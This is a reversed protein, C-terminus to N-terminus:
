EPTSMLAGNNSLSVMPSGFSPYNMSMSRAGAPSVAKLRGRTQERRSIGFLWRTEMLSFTKFTRVGIPFGQAYDRSQKAYAMTVMVSDARGWGKPMHAVFDASYVRPIASVNGNSWIEHLGEILAKIEHRTMSTQWLTAIRSRQLRKEPKLPKQFADEVQAQRPRLVM